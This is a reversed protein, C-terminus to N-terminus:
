MNQEYLMMDNFNFKKSEESLEWTNRCSCPDGTELLAEAGDNEVLPAEAKTDTRKWTPGDIKGDSPHGNRFGPWGDGWIVQDMNMCRGNYKNGKWYAHYCMWDRGLDDTIIEANHGTGAFSLTTPNSMIWNKSNDFAAETMAKDDRGIYPGLINQSRGVVIHYTSKGEACCSGKSGFCYYYNDKFHVYTGEMEKAIFTKEGSPDLALGDDTLKRAWVGSNSGYSGWFLYLDGTKKDRVINADINNSIGQTAMDTLMGHENALPNLSQINEWTFPGEPKDSVAVGCASRDADTMSGLAYYLVYRGDIYEIDPAWVRTGDVWTPRKLGGFANGVLEWNVMDRSRYVPLYVCKDSGNDGNQTSYAYFYGTRERDDIVSPDACNNRIVPNEYKTYTYSDDKNDPKVPSEDVVKEGCGALLLVAFSCILYKDFNRM